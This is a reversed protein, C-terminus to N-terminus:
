RKKREKREENALATAKGMKNRRQEHETIRNRSPQCEFGTMSSLNTTSALSNRKDAFTPEETIQKSSFLFDKKPTTVRPESHEAQNTSTIFSAIFDNLISPKTFDPLNRSTAEKATPPRFPNM